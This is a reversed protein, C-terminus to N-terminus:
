ECSQGDSRERKGGDQMTIDILSNTFLNDKVVVLAKEDFLSTWNKGLM